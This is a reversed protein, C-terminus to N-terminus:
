VHWWRPTLEISMGKALTIKSIGAPLTYFDGTELELNGNRNESGKYADMLECDIDTYDDNATINIDCDGIILHGTGYVRIFPKATYDTINSIQGSESFKIPTEGTRLFKQPKCNFTVEFCNHYSEVETAKTITAMRYEDAYADDELRRYGAHRYAWAKFGNFNTDFDNKVVCLYKLDVNEYDGDFFIIDGNRGAVHETDINPEAVDYRNKCLAMYVGFDSLRKGDFVVTGLNMNM